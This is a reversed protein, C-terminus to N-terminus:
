DLKLGIDRILKAMRAHAARTELGLQEPSGAGPELALALLRQRVANDGLAKAIEANLREVAAAPTNQPAFIAGWPLVVFGPVGAESLTPVEPLLSSRQGSGVGLSRLKGARIFEIVAALSTIMVPVRGSVVDLVAQTSGKYPVHTLSTGTAAKFMEMMVHMPSGNGGSAFDIQGPRAKALAVFEGVTKAPVSPHVFMTVTIGAVMGVPAFSTFPDYAAKPYLLPVTSVVTDSFGGLTYGDPAARALREGGILGSAGPVNEITIQQGMNDAMKQAVIRLMVDVASAAALPIIMQIPKAPYTQLQPQAHASATALLIAVLLGTRYRYTM